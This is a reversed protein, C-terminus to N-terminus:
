SDCQLTAGWTQKGAETIQAASAGALRCNWRSRLQDKQDHAPGLM